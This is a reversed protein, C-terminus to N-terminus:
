ASPAVIASRPSSGRSRVRRMCPREVLFWSLAALAVTGIITIGIFVAMGWRDGGFLVTLQQIPWAYIYFGYSIDNKAIWSPQPIVTSLYLLGYALFPSSIQGGWHPIFAISVLALLLSALAIWRNIGFREIVLFAVAGGLFFPLLKFLLVFSGDLGVREALGVNMWVLVSALFVAAAPVFSRRFFAWAGLIWVILYCLFEYYLTWLSGNWANPYPVTDLTAGIDYNVIDLGLNAWVYELPTIPTSVYGALTGNEIMAAIPGFVAATVLLCVVFAPYIRAVRHLLYDGAGTRFRSRTILFGSLVFFGAVAWGGLNEGQIQPGVGTGAIYWSHAFLVLGALVLRFLNLSNDRYPFPSGALANGASM